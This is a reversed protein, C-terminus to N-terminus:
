SNIDCEACKRNLKNVSETLLSSAHQWKFVFKDRDTMRVCVPLVSFSNNHSLPCDTFAPDTVSVSSVCVCVCVCMVSVVKRVRYKRQKLRVWLGSYILVWLFQLLHMHSFAGEPITTFAVNVMTRRHFFSNHTGNFIEYPLVRLCM